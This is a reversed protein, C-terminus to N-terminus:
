ARGTLTLGVLALDLVSVALLVACGVVRLARGNVHEGMTAASGTALVLPALAFPLGLALAVQSLVLVWLPEAGSALLLLAPALTVLRRALRGVHRRLLSSMIEAGAQTGVATSALGSCLLAVLFATSAGEGVREALGAAVGEISEAGGSLASAGLVLMAVNISGAVLMAATVDVRTWRLRPEHPAHPADTQSREATLGSHLYVAHPMVTAGVIGTALLVTEPGGLGPLLGAAMEGLSPPRAVLGYVFGGGIGLLSAACVAEFFRPGLRDRLLLVGISFAGVLLGAPVLPVDLLLHIALAGGVVEAIDTAIAVVEAQAWYLRRAPTSTRGAVWTGLSGGTVIGLKASLYQVPGAVLTALVVVWLLLYGYTAGAATNTAVNGPDVYAVAAVFAPGLARAGRPVPHRRPDARSRQRTRGDLYM